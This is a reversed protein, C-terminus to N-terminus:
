KPLLTINKLNPSINFDKLKDIYGRDPNLTGDRDLFICDYKILIAVTTKRLKKLVLM